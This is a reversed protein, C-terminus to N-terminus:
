AQLKSGLEYLLPLAHRARSSHSPVLDLPLHGDQLLSLMWVDDRQVLHVLVAGVHHEDQLQSIHQFRLSLTRRM